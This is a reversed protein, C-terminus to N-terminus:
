GTVESSRNRLVALIAIAPYLRRYNPKMLVTEQLKEEHALKMSRLFLSLGGSLGSYITTPLKAGIVNSLATACITSTIYAGFRGCQRGPHSIVSLIRQLVKEDSLDETELAESLRGAQYEDADSTQNICNELDGLAYKLLTQRGYTAMVGIISQAVKETIVLELYGTPLADVHVLKRDNIGESVATEPYPRPIHDVTEAAKYTPVAKLKRACIYLIDRYDKYDDRQRSGRTFLNSGIRRFGNELEEHLAPEHRMLGIRDLSFESNGLNRVLVTKGFAFLEEDTAKSLIQALDNKFHLDMPQLNITKKLTPTVVTGKTRLIINLAEGVNVIRNGSLTVSPIDGTEVLSQLLERDETSDLRQSLEQVEILEQNEDRTEPM